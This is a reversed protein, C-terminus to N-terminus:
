EGNNQSNDAGDTAAQASDGNDDADSIDYSFEAQATRYAKIDPLICIYFTKDFVWIVSKCIVSVLMNLLPIWGFIMNVFTFVMEIVFSVAYLPVGVILCLTKFVCYFFNRSTYNFIWHLRQLYYEKMVNNEYLNYLLVATNDINHGRMFAASHRITVRRCFISKKYFNTAVIINFIM